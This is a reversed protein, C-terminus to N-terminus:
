EFDVTIPIRGPANRATATQPQLMQMQPHLYETHCLAHNLSHHLNVSM